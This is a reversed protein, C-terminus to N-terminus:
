ETNTECLSNIGEVRFLDFDAVVQDSGALLRADLVADQCFVIKQLDGAFIETDGYLSIEEMCVLSGIPPSNFESFCTATTVPAACPIPRLVASTRASRPYRNASLSRRMGSSVM